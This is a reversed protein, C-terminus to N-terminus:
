HRKGGVLRIVPADVNPAVNWTPALNPLTNVTGFIGAIAEAPLFSAYRSCMAVVHYDVAASELCPSYSLPWAM